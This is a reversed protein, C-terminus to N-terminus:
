FVGNRAVLYYVIFSFSFSVIVEREQPPYGALTFLVTTQTTTTQFYYGGTSPDDDDAPMAVTDSPPEQERIRATFKYIITLMPYSLLLHFISFIHPELHM